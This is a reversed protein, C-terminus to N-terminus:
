AVSLCEKIQVNSMVKGTSQELYRISERYYQEDYSSIAEVALIVHYDMQFADVASARVCAHTNVGGLVILDCCLEDLLEKLETGFFASYRKKVIEYDNPARALERLVDSGGTGKITIRTGSERMSLYADSLDPAFEQRIWIVPHASLRAFEALDNVTRCIPTRQASLPPRAFFDELLDVFAFVPKM